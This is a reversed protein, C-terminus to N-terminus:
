RGSRVAGHACSIKYGNFPPVGKQFCTWMYDIREKGQDSCSMVKVPCQFFFILLSTQYGRDFNENLKFCFWLRFRPEIRERRCSMSRQLITM